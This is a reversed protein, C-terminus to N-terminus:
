WRRRRGRIASLAKGIQAIPEIAGIENQVMMVSVLATQPTVASLVRAPDVMGESDVPVLSVPYGSEKLHDLMSAVSPHEVTTSVIHSAQGRARVTSSIAWNNAETGGSTFFVEEDKGGLLSSVNRRAKGVLEEARAGLRHLSSPNGFEDNLVNIM